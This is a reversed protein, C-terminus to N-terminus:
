LNTSRKEKRVREAQPIRLYNLKLENTFNGGNLAAMAVGYGSPHILHPPALKFDNCINYCMEAGDGVLITIAPYAPCTEIDIIDGVPCAEDATIRKLTDNEAYFLATYVQECRADMVARIYYGDMHAVNWAVAELSSVGCIPTNLSLALGQATAAGIRLGTFSGPGNTVAIRTLQNVTTKTQDFLGAILPMLTESHTLGANILGQALLCGDASFLASSATKSSCDIALLV